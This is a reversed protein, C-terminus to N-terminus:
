PSAKALAKQLEDNRKQDIDEMERLKQSIETLIIGRYQKGQGLAQMEALFEQRERVEKVVPSSVLSMRQSTSTSSRLGLWREPGARFQKCAPFSGRQPPFPSGDRGTGRGQAAGPESCSPLGRHRCSGGKGWLGSRAGLAKCEEFRDPEPDLPLLKAQRVSQKKKRKEIAEKGNTFIDQLREKEKETDRCPRPKFQDRSYAENAQCVEAPRLHPRPGLIPPLCFTSVRKPTPKQSSSPSCRSPLADGRKVSDMLHRQQFNTLKSEEMMVKLLQCTEPTYGSQPAQWFGTGKAVAGSKGKAAMAFGGLLGAEAKGLGPRIPFM